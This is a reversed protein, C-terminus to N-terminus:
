KGPGSPAPGGLRFRLDEPAGVAAGPLEVRGPAAKPPLAYVVKVESVTSPLVRPAPRGRDAPAWV